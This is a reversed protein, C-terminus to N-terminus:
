TAPKRDLRAGSAQAGVGSNHPKIAPLAPLCNLNRRTVADAVPVSAGSAVGVEMGAPVALEVVRALVVLAGLGLGFSGAVFFSGIVAIVKGGIGRQQRAGAM